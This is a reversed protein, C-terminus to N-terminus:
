PTAAAPAGYTASLYRVVAKADDDSMPAGYATRMKAVEGAWFAEPMGRPQTTVYDASHCALCHRQAAELGLGDALRSVGKPWVLAAAPSNAPAQAAVGFSAAVLPAALAAVLALRTSLPRDRSM